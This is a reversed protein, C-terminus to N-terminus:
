DKETAAIDHVLMWLWEAIEDQRKKELDYPPGLALILKAWKSLDETSVQGQRKLNLANEVHMWTFLISEFPDVESRIHLADESVDIDLIGSVARSLEEVSIRLWAFGELAARQTSNLKPLTM